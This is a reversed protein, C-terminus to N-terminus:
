KKPIIGQNALEPIVLNTVEDKVAAGSSPDLTEGTGAWIMHGGEGATSYVDVEHRVIKSTDTYGPQQVEKYITEYSNTWKNYRDVAQKTVAGPMDITSYQTQLRKVMLVGDFHKDQVVSSIQSPDPISDGFISYSPTADVGQAALGAVFADEWLRKYIPNKKPVIILMHTLPQSGFAPDRWENALRSSTCGSFLCMGIAVTTFVIIVFLNVRSKM